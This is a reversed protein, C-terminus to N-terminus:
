QAEEPEHALLLEGQGAARKNTRKLHYGKVFALRDGNFMCNVDVYFIGGYISRYLIKAELLEALARFYTARSMDGPPVVPSLQVEDTNPNDLMQRYIHEFLTHGAKSLGAAKKLGSLFLKVFREEDVEEMEYFIAGGPGLVEGTSDDLVVGKKKDGIRRPRRKGIARSDPISPNSDYAPQGRFSAVAQSKPAM